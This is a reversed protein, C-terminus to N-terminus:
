YADIVADGGFNVTVTGEHSIDTMRRTFGSVTHYRGSRVTLTVSEGSALPPINPNDNAGALVIMHWGSEEVIEFGDGIEANHFNFCFGESVAGVNLTVDDILSDGNFCIFATGDFGIAAGR